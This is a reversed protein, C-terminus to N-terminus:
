NEFGNAGADQLVCDLKSAARVRSIRGPFGAASHCIRAPSVSPKSIAACFAAPSMAVAVRHFIRSNMNPRGRGAEAKPEREGIKILITAFRRDNTPYPFLFSVM